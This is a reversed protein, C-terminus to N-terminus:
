YLIQQVIAALSPMSWGHQSKVLEKNGPLGFAEFTPKDMQITLIGKNVNFQTHTASEHRQSFLTAEGKQLIDFLKANQLLQGLSCDTIRYHAPLQRHQLLEPPIALFRKLPM